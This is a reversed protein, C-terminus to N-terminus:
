RRAIMWFHLVTMGIVVALFEALQWATLATTM